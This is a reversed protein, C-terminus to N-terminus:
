LPGLFEAISRTVPSLARREVVLQDDAQRPEGAATSGVPEVSHPYPFHGPRIEKVGAIGGIKRESRSSPDFALCFSQLVTPQDSQAPWGVGAYHAALASLGALRCAVLM